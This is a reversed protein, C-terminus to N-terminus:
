GPKESSLSKISVNEMKIPHTRFALRSLRTVLSAIFMLSSHVLTSCEKLNKPSTNQASSLFYSVRTLRLVPMTRDVVLMHLYLIMSWDVRYSSRLFFPPLSKSRSCSNICRNHLTLQLTCVAVRGPPALPATYILVLALPWSSAKLEGRLRLGLYAVSYSL